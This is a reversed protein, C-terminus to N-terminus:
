FILLLTKSRCINDSVKRVASLVERLSESGGEVDRILESDDGDDDDDGDDMDVTDNDAERDLSATVSEQYSPQHGQKGKM